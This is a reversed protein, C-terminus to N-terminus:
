TVSAMYESYKKFRADFFADKLWEAHEQSYTDSLNKNHHTIHKLAVSFCTSKLTLYFSAAMNLNCFEMLLRISPARGWSLCFDGRKAFRLTLPHFYLNCVGDVLDAVNGFREQHLHCVYDSLDVLRLNPVIRAIEHAIIQEYHANVTM